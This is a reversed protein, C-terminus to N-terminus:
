KRNGARPASDHNGARPALRTSAFALALRTSTIELDASLGSQEPLRQCGQGARCCPVLCLSLPSLPDLSRVGVSAFVCRRDRALAFRQACDDQRERREVISSPLQQGVLTTQKQVAVDLLVPLCTAVCRSAVERHLPKLAEIIVQSAAASM